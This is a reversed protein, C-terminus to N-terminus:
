IPMRSTKVVIAGTGVVSGIICRCQPASAKVSVPEVPRKRIM